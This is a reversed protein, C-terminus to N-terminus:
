NPTDKCDPTVEMFVRDRYEVTFISAEDGDGLIGQAIQLAKSYDPKRCKSPVAVFVEEKTDAYVLFLDLGTFEM